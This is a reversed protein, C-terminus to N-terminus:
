VDYDEAIEEWKRGLIGEQVRAPISMSDGACGEWWIIFAHSGCADKGISASSLWAMCSEAPLREEGERSQGFKLELGSLHPKTRRPEVVHIKRKEGWLAALTEKTSEILRDNLDKTPFGELVGGYTRTVYFADIRVERGDHRFKM